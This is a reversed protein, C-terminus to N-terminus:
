KKGFLKSLFGGAPTASLAAMAKDKAEDVAKAAGSNEYAEKAMESAKEKGAEVVKDALKAVVEEAIGSEAAAAKVAGDQGKSWNAILARGAKVGTERDLGVKEGADGLLEDTLHNLVKSLDFSM